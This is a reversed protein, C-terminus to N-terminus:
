RLRNLGGLSLLILSLTWHSAFVHALKTQSPPSGQQVGGPVPIILMVVKILLALVMILPLPLPNPSLKVIPGILLGPTDIGDPSSRAKSQLHHLPIYRASM